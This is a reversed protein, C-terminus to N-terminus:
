SSKIHFIGPNLVREFDVLFKNAKVKMDKDNSHFLLNVANLFEEIGPQQQNQNQM